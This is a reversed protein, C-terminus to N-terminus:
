FTSLDVKGAVSGDAFLFVMQLGPTPTPPIVFTDYGVDKSEGGGVVVDIFQATLDTHGFRDGNPFVLLYVPPTGEGADIGIATNNEVHLYMELDRMGKPAQYGATWTAVVIQTVTYKIGGNEYVITQNIQHTVPQWQTPDYSGTLPVPVPLEKNNGFQIRFEGIKSTVPVDFLLGGSAATNAAWNLGLTAPTSTALPYNNGAADFVQITPYVGYDTQNNAKIQIELANLKPDSEQRDPLKAGEKASLITIDVGVYIAQRNINDLTQTGAQTGGPTSGSGPTNGAGATTSTGPTGNGHNTTSGSKSSLKKYLFFGGGLLAVVLVIAVLCGLGIKLGTRQKQPQAWPAVGGGPAVVPPPGPAYVPPPMMTQGQPGSPPYSGANNPGSYSVYGPAPPYQSAYTDLGVQTALAPTGPPPPPQFQTPAYDGGGAPPASARMTEASLSPAQNSSGGPIAPKQPAGCEACFASGAPLPKGCNSCFTSQM